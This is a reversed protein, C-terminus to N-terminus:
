IPRSTRISRGCTSSSTTAPTRRRTRGSASSGCTTAPTDCGACTAPASSAACSAYNEADLVSIQFSTRQAKFTYYPNVVVARGGRQAWGANTLYRTVFPTRGVRIEHPEPHQETTLLMWADYFDDDFREDDLLRGFDVGLSYRYFRLGSHAATYREDFTFPVAYRAEHGSTRGRLVFTAGTLYGHRTSIRGRLYAVGGFIRLVRVRISGFPALPEDVAVALAGGEIPHVTIARGGADVTPFRSLQTHGAEALAVRETSGDPRQQELHLVQIAPGPGPITALDVEVEYAEATATVAALETWSAPGQAWVARPRVGPPPVLTLGLRSGDQVAELRHLTSGSRTSGVAKTLRRRVRRVAPPLSPM